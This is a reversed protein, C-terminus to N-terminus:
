YMGKPAISASIHFLFLFLIGRNGQSVTTRGGTTDSSLVHHHLYSTALTHILNSDRPSFPPPLLKIEEKPVVVVRLCLLREITSPVFM